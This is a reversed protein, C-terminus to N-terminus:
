LFVGTSSDIKLLTTLRFAQVKILFLIWLHKGTFIAIKESGINKYLKESPQKKGIDAFTTVVGKQTKM